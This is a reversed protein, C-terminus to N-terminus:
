LDKLSAVVLEKSIRAVEAKKKESVQILVNLRPMIKNKSNDSYIDIHIHM